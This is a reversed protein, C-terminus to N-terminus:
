DLWCGGHLGRFGDKLLLGSLLLQGSSGGGGGRSSGFLGGGIGFLEDGVGLLVILFVLSGLLGGDGVAALGLGVSAEEDRGLRLDSQNDSDATNDSNGGLGLLDHLEEAKTLEVVSGEDSQVLGGDTHKSQDFRVDGVSVWRTGGDLLKDVLTSESLDVLLADRDSGISNDSLSESIDTDLAGGVEDVLDVSDSRVELLGVVEQPWELKGVRLSSEGGLGLKKVEHFASFGTGTSLFDVLQDGLHDLDLGGFVLFSVITNPVVM